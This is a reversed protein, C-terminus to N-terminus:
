LSTFLIIKCLLDDEKCNDLDEIFHVYNKKIFYFAKKAKKLLSLSLAFFDNIDKIYYNMKEIIKELISISEFNLDLENLKDMTKTLYEIYKIHELLNTEEIMKHVYTNCINMYVDMLQLKESTTQSCDLYKKKLEPTIDYVTKKYVYLVADRSTLQLFSKDDELIQGVFEVYFYFSKQCHFYTLDLNKTYYLIYRFVHIITNLGRIIVFKAFEKNKININEFIFKLYEIFLYSIKSTIQSHTTDLDKKYNDENRLSFNMEKVLTSNNISHTM